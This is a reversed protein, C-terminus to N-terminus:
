VFPIGPRPGTGRRCPEGVTIFCNDFWTRLRTCGARNCAKFDIRLLDGDFHEEFQRHRRRMRWTIGRLRKLEFWRTGRSAWYIPNGDEDMGDSWGRVKFRMREAGRVGVTVQRFTGLFEGRVSVKGNFQPPGAAVAPSPALFAFCLAFAGLGLSIRSRIM